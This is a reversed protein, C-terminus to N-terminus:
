PKGARRSFDYVTPEGGGIAVSDRLVPRNGADQVELLHRSAPLHIEGGAPYRVRNVLVRYDKPIGTVILVGYPLLAPRRADAPVPKDGAENEKSLLSMERQMLDRGLDDFDPRGQLYFFSGTIAIFLVSASIAMFRMRANAFASGPRGVRRRPAKEPAAEASPATEHAVNMREGLEQFKAQVDANEPDSELLERLRAFAEEIKGTSESANVMAWLWAKQERRIVAELAERGGALALSNSQMGKLGKLLPELTKPRKAPDPNLYPSLLAKVSSPVGAIETISIGSQILSVVEDASKGRYYRAGSFIELLVLALSYYESVTEMPGHGRLIEPPIYALTGKLAGGHHDAQPFGQTRLRAMGLDLLKIRGTYDAMFNEPKLDRHLIGKQHIFDVVEVMQRALHIKLSEPLGQGSSPDATGGNGPFAPLGLMAMNGTVNVNGSSVYASGLEAMKGLDVGQVYEMVLYYFSGDSGYDNVQVLSPHSLSACLKAEREFRKVEDENGISSLKLRKIAVMRDLSVQRARFIQAEGGEGLLSWDSFDGTAFSM